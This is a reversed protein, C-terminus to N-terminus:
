FRIFKFIRRNVGRILRYEGIQTTGEPSQQGNALEDLQLM